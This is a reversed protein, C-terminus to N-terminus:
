TRTSADSGLRDRTAEYSPVYSSTPNVMVAYEETGMEQFVSVFARAYLSFTRVARAVYESKQCKVLTIPAKELLFAPPFGESGDKM